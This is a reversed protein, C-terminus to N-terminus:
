VKEDGPERHGGICRMEVMCTGCAGRRQGQGSWLAYHQNDRAKEANETGSDGPCLMQKEMAYVQEHMACVM